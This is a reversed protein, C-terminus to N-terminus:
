RRGGRGPRLLDAVATMGARDLRYVDWVGRKEWTVLGADRLARLHHSVTPQSLGVHPRLDTICTGDPGAADVLSLLRLRVPDALARLVGAIKTADPHEMPEGTFLPRMTM